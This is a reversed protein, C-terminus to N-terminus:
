RARRQLVDERIWIQRQGDEIGVSKAIQRHQQTSPTPQADEHGREPEARQRLQRDINEARM